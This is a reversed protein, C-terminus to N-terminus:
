RQDLTQQANAFSTAVGSFFDNFSSRVAGGDTATDLLEATAGTAPPEVLAASLLKGPQPAPAGVTALLEGSAATVEQHLATFKELQKRTPAKGGKPLAKGMSDAAKSLRAALQKAKKEDFAM